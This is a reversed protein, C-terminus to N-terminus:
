CRRRVSKKLPIPAFRVKAPQKDSNRHQRV